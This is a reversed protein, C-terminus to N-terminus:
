VMEISTWTYWVYGNEQTYFNYDIIDFAKSLDLFVGMTYRNQDFSNLADHMFQTVADMTSHNKVFVLNVQM